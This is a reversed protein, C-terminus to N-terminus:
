EFWNQMMFESRLDEPIENFNVLTNNIEFQDGGKAEKCKDMFLNQDDFYKEATKVGCRKFIGPINDSKDGTVIKCFLNKKGDDYARKSELLNKYKLSFISLRPGVLQLYDHDSAIIVVKSTEEPYTLLTQKASIAICDDAELKPHSLIMHAGGKEFLKEKYAMKFFLGGEFGDNVRTGKYEPHLKMRWIEDSPCDKGVFMIVNELKLKKSIEKVKSVFTTKFKEVFEPNNIPDTFVEDKHSLKWWQVLAYYRYFIFYSGDIFVFTKSMTILM